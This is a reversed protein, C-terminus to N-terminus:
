KLWGKQKAGKSYYYLFIAVIIIVLPLVVGEPVGFVEIKPTTLWEAIMQILVCLLSLGFLFIAFKRRLLLFISGLLGSFVALAFVGTLWAPQANVLELQEETFAAMASEVKYATLLYAAVGYANWLVAFVAIIWFWLKPKNTTTM